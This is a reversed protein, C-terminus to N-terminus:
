ENPKYSVGELFLAAKVLIFIQIYITRRRYKYCYMYWGKALNPLM